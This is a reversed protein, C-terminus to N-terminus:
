AAVNAKKSGTGGFEVRLKGKTTYIGEGILAARATKKSELARSTEEEIANLIKQNRQSHTM